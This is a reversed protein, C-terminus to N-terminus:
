TQQLPVDFIKVRCFLTISLYYKGSGRLDGRLIGRLIGRLDGRLIGRLDSPLSVVWTLIKPM